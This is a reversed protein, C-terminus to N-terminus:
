ADDVHDSSGIQPQQRTEEGRAVGEDGVIGARHMQGRRHAHGDGRDEPRGVLADGRREAVVVHDNMLYEASGAHQSVARDIMAAHPPHADVRHEVGHNATEVLAERVRTVVDGVTAAENRAPVVLSVRAGGKAALLDALPWDDWHHSAVAPPDDDLPM